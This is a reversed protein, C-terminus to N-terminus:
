RKIKKTTQSRTVRRTNAVLTANPTKNNNRPRKLNIIPKQPATIRTRLNQPVTIRPNAVPIANPTKNNNRMRKTTQKPTLSTLKNLQERANGLKRFNPGIGFNMKSKIGSTVENNNKNNKNNRIASVETLTNNSQKQKKRLPEVM